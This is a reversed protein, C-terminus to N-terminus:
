QQILREGEKGGMGVETQVGDREAEKIGTNKEAASGRRREGTKGEEKEKKCSDRLKREEQFPKFYYFYFWLEM